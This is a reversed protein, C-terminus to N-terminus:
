LDSPPEGHPVISREADLTWSGRWWSHCSPCVCTKSIEARRWGRGAGRWARRARARARARARGRGGARGGAWGRRQWDDCAGSRVYVRAAASPAERWAQTRARAASAYTTCRRRPTATRETSTSGCGSPVGIPSASPPALASRPEGDGGFFPPPLLLLLTPPPPPTTSIAASSSFIRAATAAAFAPCASPTAFGSSGTTPAYSVIFTVRRPRTGRRSIRSMRACVSLCSSGSLAVFTRRPVRWAYM